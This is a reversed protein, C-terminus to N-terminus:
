GDPPPEEEPVEPTVGRQTAALVEVDSVLWEGDVRQLAIDMRLEEEVPGDLHETMITQRVVAFAGAEDGDIDQVFLDAIEGRSVAGTERLTNRFEADFLDAIERAYDDTARARAEAVWEEIREGEFTTLRLALERATAHVVERERADAHLPEPTFTKGCHPCVVESAAAASPADPM